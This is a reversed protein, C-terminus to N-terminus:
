PKENESERIKAIVELYYAQGHQVWNAYEVEDKIRRELETLSIVEVAQVESPQLTLDSIELKPVNVLFTDSFDKMEQGVGVFKPEVKWTGLFMFSRLPLKVGLEEAVERRAALSSPEGSRVGGGVSVDWQGDFIGRGIARQQVLLDEHKDILWVHVVRRWDGDRLIEKKTKVKGTPRGTADFVDFLEQM